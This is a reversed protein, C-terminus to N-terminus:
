VIWRGQSRDWYTKRGKYSASQEPDPIRGRLIVREDPLERTMGDIVKTSTVRQRGVESFGYHKQYVGIVIPQVISTRVVADYYCLFAAQRFREHILQRAIGEGRRDADVFLEALYFDQHADKHVVPLDTKFRLPFGIASGVLEGEDEAVLFVRHEMSWIEEFMSRVGELEFQEFWPPEAFCSKYLKALTYMDTEPNFSRVDIM